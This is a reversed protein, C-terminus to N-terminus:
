KQRVLFLFIHYVHYQENDDDKWENSVVVPNERFLLSYKYEMGGESLNVEQTTSEDLAQKVEEKSPIRGFTEHWQISDMCAIYNFVQVADDHGNGFQLGAYYISGMPSALNAICEMGVEGIWQNMAKQESASGISELGGNNGSIRIGLHFWMFVYPGFNCYELIIDILDKPLYADLETAHCIIQQQRPEKCRDSMLLFELQKKIMYTLPKDGFVMKPLGTENVCTLNIKNEAGLRKRRMIPLRSQPLLSSFSFFL